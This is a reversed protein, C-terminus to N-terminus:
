RSTECLKCSKQCHAKAFANECNNKVAKECMWANKTSDACVKPKAPAASASAVPKAKANKKQGAKVGQAAKEEAIMAKKVTEDADEIGNVSGENEMEELKEGKQKKLVNAADKERNKTRTAIKKEIGAIFAALAKEIEKIQERLTAIRADLEAKSAAWTEAFETKKQEMKQAETTWIATKKDDMEQLRTKLAALVDDGSDKDAAMSDAKKKEWESKEKEIRGALGEMFSTFRATGEAKAAAYEDQLRKILALLRNKAEEARGRAANMQEQMMGYEGEGTVKGIAWRKDSERKAQADKLKQKSEEYDAECKKKAKEIAQMESAVYKAFDIDLIAEKEQVEKLKKAQETAPEPGVVPAVNISNPGGVTGTAGATGLIDFPGSKRGGSTLQQYNKVTQHVSKTVVEKLEKNQEIGAPLTVETTLTTARGLKQSEDKDVPKTADLTTNAMTAVLGKTGATDVPDVRLNAASVAAVVCTLLLVRM